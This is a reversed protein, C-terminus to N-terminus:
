ERKWRLISKLDGWLGCFMVKFKNFDEMAAIRSLQYLNDRSTILKCPSVAVACTFGSEKIFNVLEANFDGNPYSFATVPQALKEEVDKKSQIIEWKAQELPMNVLVPHSVSHAGFAIGGNSMEKVEDWSLILEKGLDASIDVGSIQLLKEILLNKEGDSSKKLRETVISNVRSKDLESRLSHSGLENLGLEEVRTHQIAYSVKDWWFLKSTGIHGTALFITAPVHYKKLIPYAYLYNDKYGDDFTIVVAKEPLSKGQQIYQALKDLSLIECSRCFYQMQREFSQPNIPEFSWNDQKPSVRHYMLIAVQSKTLKRRLSAYVDLFGLHNAAGAVFGKVEM